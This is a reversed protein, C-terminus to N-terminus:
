SSKFTVDTSTSNTMKPSKNYYIAIIITLKRKSGRYGKRYDENTKASDHEYDIFRLYNVTRM